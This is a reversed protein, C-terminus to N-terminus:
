LAWTCILRWESNEVLVQDEVIDKNETDKTNMQCKGCTGATAAEVM